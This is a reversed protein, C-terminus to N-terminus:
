RSEGAFAGNGADLYITEGVRSRRLWQTWKGKGFEQSAQLTELVAKPAASEGILAEDLVRGDMPKAPKIKLLRLVTPAIDVNGTPLEDVEGHRFDPGAAVLTNHIDSPSLTAHTGRGAKRNWDSNILGAAGFENKEETWRFAMVVDPGKSSDILAQSFAFAGNGGDKSFIVGAFDSQQLTEILKRIIAQDHGVVYFLVSGGNGVLLIEGPKVNENDKLDLDAVANLGAAKLIKQLDNSRAITSFGHDSVVMVDTTSRAGKEELADLVRGLNTDSSKIAALAAPSGPATEHQSLDPEGLWLISFAPVDGAWLDKTLAATTWSDRQANSYIPFGPFDGESRIISSLFDRPRAEGASLTEGLKGGDHDPRRDLLFGVTKAAAVVTRGGAARVLEALTPVSLYHGSTLADGKNIVRTQETSIFKTKDIDPRYDYNAILGSHEPYMGTEIATGNVHTATLYVAHHNRFTVGEQAFKWLIPTTEASVFDPRMGDWVVIVVHRDKALEAATINQSVLCALSLTAPLFFKLM